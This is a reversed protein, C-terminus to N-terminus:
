PLFEDGMYIEVVKDVSVGLTVAYALLWLVDSPFVLRGDESQLIYAVSSPDVTEPVKFGDFARASAYYDSLDTAWEGWSNQTSNLERETASAYQCPESWKELLDEADLGIHAAVRRCGDACNWGLRPRRHVSIFNRVVQAVLIEIHAVGFHSVYGATITLDNCWRCQPMPLDFLRRSFPTGCQPCGFLLRTGHEACVTVSQPQHYLRWFAQGITELDNEYCAMCVKPRDRWLRMRAPTPFTWNPFLEQQIGSNALCDQNDYLHGHHLWACLPLQTHHDILYDLDTDTAVSMGM